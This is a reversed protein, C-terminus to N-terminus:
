LRGEVGVIGLVEGRCQLRDGVGGPQPQQAQDLGLGVMFCADTVQGLREAQALWRDAVM